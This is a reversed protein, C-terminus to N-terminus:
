QSSKARARQLGAAILYDALSEGAAAAAATLEAKEAETARLLINESRNAGAKAPRGAGPRRGGHTAAPPQELTVGGRPATAKPRGAM